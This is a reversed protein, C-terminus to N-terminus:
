GPNFRASYFYCLWLSYRSLTDLRWLCHFNLRLLRRPLAPFQLPKGEILVRQKVHQSLLLEPSEAIIKAHSVANHESL